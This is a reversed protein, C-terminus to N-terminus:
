QVPHQKREWDDYGLGIIELLINVLAVLTVGMVFSVWAQYSADPFITFLNLIVSITGGLGFALANLALWRVVHNPDKKLWRYLKYLTAM